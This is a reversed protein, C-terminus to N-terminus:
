RQSCLEEATNPAWRKARSWRRRTTLCDSARTYYRVSREPRVGGLVAASPNVDVGCNGTLLGSMNDRYERSKAASKAINHM